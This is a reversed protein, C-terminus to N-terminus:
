RGMLAMVEKNDMKRYATEPKASANLLELREIMVKACHFIPLEYLLCEPLGSAAYQALFEYEDFQSLPKKERAASPEPMKEGAILAECAELAEFMLEGSRVRKEISALSPKRSSTLAAHYIRAIVAFDIGAMTLFDVAPSTGYQARYRICVIAAASTKM